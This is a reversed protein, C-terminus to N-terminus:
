RSVNSDLWAQRTKGRPRTNAPDVIWDTNRGQRVTILGDAAGTEIVIGKRKKGYVTFYVNDGDKPIYQRDSMMQGTCLGASNM